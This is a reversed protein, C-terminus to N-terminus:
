KTEESEDFGNQQGNQDFDCGAQQRLRAERERESAEWEDALRRAKRAGNKVTSERFIDDATIMTSSYCM